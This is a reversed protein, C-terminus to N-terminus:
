KLGLVDQMDYLGATQRAGLARRAARRPRINRPQFSQAHAGRARWERRLHRHSRRRCRRRPDRAHRDRRRDTRRRHGAPRAARRQQIALERVEALIEALRKATGSPADKKLRHHMEVVELDFGPGLIEAAKRTLWFLTNVGVSFNPAFVIPISAAASNSPPSKGCRHPRHHRHGPVKETCRLARAGARDDRSPQFRDVCDCRELAAAFDDGVDVEAAISVEPDAQRAPSSRRAWAAARAMSSFGLPSMKRSNLARAADSRAKRANAAGMECLPLRVDPQMQGAWGLATKIPVPNPEIFLDKFLPYLRSQLKRRRRRGRRRRIRAGNGGVERPVVNSAVSIVGGAGAAIFPLTLSDDGSLIDFTEPLAARLAERARRHRRSGQDRRHESVGRRPAARNRRRDRHRLPRSHLLSHAATEDGRRDKSIASCGKRRRSTTTHRSSCRPTPASSKGGGADARDSRRHLELRHRRDGQLPRGRCQVALEIVRTHEAHDLTPSEGTTGVPVIGTIGGRDAMRHAKRVREEDVQTAFHRSWRRTLAAFM